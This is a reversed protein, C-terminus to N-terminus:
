CSRKCCSTGIAEDGEAAATATAKLGVTADVNTTINTEDAGGVAANLQQDQLRVLKEKDLSIKKQSM